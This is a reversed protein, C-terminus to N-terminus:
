SRCGPQPNNVQDFTTDNGMLVIGLREEPYIRMETALGPGAGAHGLYTRGQPDQYSKWGLGQIGGGDMAM